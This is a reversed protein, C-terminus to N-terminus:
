KLALVGTPAGDTFNGTTQNNQYSMIKGGNIANLGTGNGIVSSSGLHVLSGVGDVLIGSGANNKVSSHDVVIGARKAWIGNGASGAVTSADVAVIISGTSATGDALIGHTNNEIRTREIMVRASGSGAPQILIGAGTGPVGTTTIVTDAVHLRATVGNPPSFKIGLGPTFGRYNTIHCNEILLAAMNVGNVAQTPDFPFDVNNFTLNRIKVAIDAGNITISGVLYALGNGTGGCDITVSQTIVVEGLAIRGGGVCFIAGGSATNSVAHGLTACPSSQSTCNNGADSGAAAVYTIENQAHAPTGPVILTLMAGLCASLVALKSM